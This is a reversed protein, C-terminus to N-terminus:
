QKELVSVLSETHADFAELDAKAKTWAARSEQSMKLASINKDYWEQTDRAGAIFARRLAVLQDRTLTLAGKAIWFDQFETELNTVTDTM